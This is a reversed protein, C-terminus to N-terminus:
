NLHSLIFRILLQSAGLLLLMLVFVCVAYAGARGQQEQQMAFLVLLLTTVFAVLNVAWFKYKLSLDLIWNKM